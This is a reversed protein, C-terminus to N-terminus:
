QKQLNFDSVTILYPCFKWTEAIFGRTKNLGVLVARM